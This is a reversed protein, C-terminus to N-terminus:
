PLLEKVSLGTSVTTDTRPVNATGRSSIDFQLRDDLTWGVTVRHELISALSRRRQVAHLAPM